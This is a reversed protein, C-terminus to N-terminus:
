STVDLAVEKIHPVTPFPAPKRPENRRALELWVPDRDVFLRFWLETNFAAFRAHPELARRRLDDSAFVGRDLSREETLLSDIQALKGAHLWVREPSAFPVKDRREVVSAPLLPRGVARLLAKPVLGRVKQMPPVTALFEVIRHDLLPVRSELSVTMSARDEHNLLSPLFVRLDHHLARDFPEDTPAHELPALYEQRPSYGALASRFEAHLGNNRTPEPGCHSQMWLESFGPATKKTLRAQIMETIARFGQRRIRRRVQQWASLEIDRPQATFDFMSTTGFAARFQAPYGGFIEDGGHGTLAVKVHRAALRSISYYTFGAANPMPSEQHWMRTAYTAMLEESTPMEEIHRAGVHRAVGRAHTSEDFFPIDDFRISFTDLLGNRHRKALATVLSSDLGGSLHCGLPADSRCHVRVADDVLETLEAVVRDDTRDHDYRYEPRWYERTQFSDGSVTLCHGPPLQRIGAFLTKSGLTHGAFLFDALGERDVNVRVRPHLLLAKIESACLFWDGDVFYHLPKIGIRDRAAFLKRKRRDWIVFAFMGNLERVCDEGLEEYLHIIVETDTHSRFRHGRARLRERLEVYNYIEGNFVLWVTRDENSMPQHGAPTLDVISLRRHGLAVGDDAWSGADDPGRHHLEDRMRVTLSEAAQGGARRYTAVIGCM